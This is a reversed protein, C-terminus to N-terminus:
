WNDNQYHFSGTFGNGSLRRLWLILLPRISEDAKSEDASGNLM